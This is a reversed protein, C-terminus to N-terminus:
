TKRPGQEVIETRKYLSSMDHLMHAGTKSVIKRACQLNLFGVPSNSERHAAVTCRREFKCHEMAASKM